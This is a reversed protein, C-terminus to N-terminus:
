PISATYTVRGYYTGSPYLTANNYSFQLVNSMQISGGIVYFDVLTQSASGNFTGSQIDLTPYTADHNYATWSITTFPITTTGCGGSICTMAASSDVNLKVENYTVGFPGQATMVIQTGGTPTTAPGNSTGTVATPTPAINAGTVNFTVMDVGGSSGVQLTISRRTQTPLFTFM